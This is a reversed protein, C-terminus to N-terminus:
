YKIHDFVGETIIRQTRDLQRFVKLAFTGSLTRNVSDISVIELSGGSDGPNIGENSSFAFGTDEYGCFNRSSNMSLTYIHVGSDVLTFAILKARDNSQGAISIVGDSRRVAGSLIAVFEVGNITARFDPPATSFTVNPAEFKKQCGNFISIVLLSTIILKFHM